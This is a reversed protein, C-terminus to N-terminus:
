PLDTHARKVSRTKVPSRAKPASRSITKKTTKRPSVISPSMIVPRPTEVVADTFTSPEGAPSPHRVTNKDEQDAESESTLEIIDDQAARKEKVYSEAARVDDDSARAKGKPKVVPYPSTAKVTKARTGASTRTVRSVTPSAPVGKSSIGDQDEEADVDIAIHGPVDNFSRERHALMAKNRATWITSSTKSYTSAAHRIVFNEAPDVSSMEFAWALAGPAAVGNTALASVASLCLARYSENAALDIMLSYAPLSRLGSLATEHHPGSLQSVMGALRPSWSKHTLHCASVITRWTSEDPPPPQVQWRVTDALSKWWAAEVAEEEPGDALFDPRYVAPPSISLASTTPDPHPKWYSHYKMVMRSFVNVYRGYCEEVEKDIIDRGVGPFVRTLFTIMADDMGVGALLDYADQVDFDHEELALLLIDENARPFMKSIALLAERKTHATPTSPWDTVPASSWNTIATDPSVNSGDPLAPAGSPPFGRATAQSGSLPIASVPSSDGMGTPTNDPLLPTTSTETHAAPDPNM